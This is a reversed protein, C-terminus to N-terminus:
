RRNYVDSISVYSATPTGSVRETPASSCGSNNLLYTQAILRLAEGDEAWAHLSPQTVRSRWVGDQFGLAYEPHRNALAM